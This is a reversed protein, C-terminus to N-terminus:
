SPERLFHHALSALLLQQCGQVPMGTSTLGAWTYRTFRMQVDPYYRRWMQANCVVWLAVLAGFSVLATAATVEVFLALLATPAAPCATSTPPRVIPTSDVGRCAAAAPQAEEEAWRQWRPKCLVSCGM